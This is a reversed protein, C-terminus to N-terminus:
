LNICGARDFSCHIMESWIGGIILSIL